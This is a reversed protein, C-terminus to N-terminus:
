PAPPILDLEILTWEMALMAAPDEILSNVAAGIPVASGLQRVSLVAFDGQAVGQQYVRIGYPMGSAIEDQYDDVATKADSLSQKYELTVLTFQEATTGLERITVDDAGPRRLVETVIHRRQPVGRIAQYERTEDEEGASDLTVMKHGLTTPM